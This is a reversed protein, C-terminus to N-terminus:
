RILAKQMKYSFPLSVACLMHRAAWLVFAAADIAAPAEKVSLVTLPFYLFIAARM